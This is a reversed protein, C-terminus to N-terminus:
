KGSADLEQLRKRASNQAWRQIRVQMELKRKEPPVLAARYGHKATDLDGKQEYARGRSYHAAAYTPDIRIAQDYNAIASDLDGSAMLADGRYDYIEVNTPDLDLAQDFDALAKKFDKKRTYWSGRSTYADARRQGEWAKTLRTCAAIAGDFRSAENWNADNTNFCISRDDAQAPLSSVSVAFAVVLASVIRTM